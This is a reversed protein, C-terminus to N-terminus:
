NAGNIPIFVAVSNASIHAMPDEPTEGSPQEMVATDLARTWRLTKDDVPLKAFANQTGRNFAILVVDDNSKFEPAEASCRLTLCFNSLSPDRWQLAEGEFDTWM